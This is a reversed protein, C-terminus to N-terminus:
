KQTDPEHHGDHKQTFVDPKLALKEAEEHTLADAAPSHKHGAEKKARRSKMVSQVYHYVSPILVIVVVGLLVLDIYNQVFHAVVPIRGVGFGIFTLGAGWVM